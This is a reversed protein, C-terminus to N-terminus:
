KQFTPDDPIRPNIQPDIRPYRIADLSASHCSFLYQMKFVKIMRKKQLVYSFLFFLSFATKIISYFTDSQKFGQISILM